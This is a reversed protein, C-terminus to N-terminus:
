SGAAAAGDGDEGVDNMEGALGATTGGTFLRAGRMKRGTNGQLDLHFYVKNIMTSDIHGVLKRLETETMPDTTRTLSWTVFFHRLTRLTFDPIASRGVKARLRNAQNVAKTLRRYVYNPYANFPRGDPLRFVYDAEPENARECRMRILDDLIEGPIPIDRHSSANKATWGNEEEEPLIHLVQTNLDLDGWKLHMAEGPRMGTLAILKVFIFAMPETIYGIAEHIESIAPLTFKKPKEKFPIVDKTIDESLLRDNYAQIFIGRLFRWERNVGERTIAVESKNNFRTQTIRWEMYSNLHATTLNKLALTNLGSENLFAIVNNIYSKYRAITSKKVSGRSECETTKKDLWQQLFVVVLINVIAPILGGGSQRDALLKIHKQRAENYDKTGLNVLALKGDPRSMQVLWNGYPRKRGNPLTRHKQFLSGEGNGAKKRLAM